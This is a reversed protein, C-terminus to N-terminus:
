KSFRSRLRSKMEDLAISSEPNQRHANLREQVLAEDGPSLLQEDLELARRIILQRERVSLTPLEQLVEAFSM